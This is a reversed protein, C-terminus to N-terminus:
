KDREFLGYSVETVPKNLHEECRFLYWRAIEDESNLKLVENFSNRALYFDNSYFLKLGKQFYVDSEKMVERKEEAYADLCEYLKISGDMEGGSVFGIYRTLFGNGINALTQQSLVIRVKAKALADIYTDLIKEEKCYIFPIMMDEVGTIGYRYDAEHLLMVLNINKMKEKGTHTQYYEIAFALAERSGQEFFVKRELLDGGASILNGAYKERIQHMKGLSETMVNMYEHESIGKINEMQFHVLCGHIKNNDGIEIDAVESKGLLLEMGKPVFRYYGRYILDREYRLKVMNHGIQDLPAWAGHLGDQTSPRDAYTQKESAVLLMGKLFKQWKSNFVLFIIMHLMTIAIMLMWMVNWIVSVPTEIKERIRAESIFALLVSKADIQTFDRSAVVYNRGGKGLQKMITENGQAVQHIVEQVDSPYYDFVDMGPAVTKSMLVEASKPELIVVDYLLNECDKMQGWYVSAEMTGDARQRVKMEELIYGTEIGIELVEKKIFRNSFFVGAALLGIMCVIESYSILQYIMQKEKRRVMVLLVILATVLLVPMFYQVVADRACSIFWDMESGPIMSKHIGKVLISDKASIEIEKVVGDRLYVIGDDQALFLKEEDYEGCVAFHGQPLSFVVGDRWKKMKVDLVYETITKGDRGLISIFIERDSNGAAFFTGEAEIVEVDWVEDKGQEVPEIGFVNKGDNIFQYVYYVRDLHVTGVTEHQYLDKETNKVFTKKQETSKYLIYEKGNSQVIQSLFGEEECIKGAKTNKVTNSGVVIGTGLLLILSVAVFVGFLKKM